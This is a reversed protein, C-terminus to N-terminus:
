YSAIGGARDGEAWPRQERGGVPDDGRDAAAASVRGVGCRASSGIGTAASSMRASWVATVRRTSTKSGATMVIVRTVPPVVFLMM